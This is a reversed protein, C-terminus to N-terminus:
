HQPACHFCPGSAGAGCPARECVGLPGGGLDCLAGSESCTRAPAESFSGADCALWLWVIVLGAVLERTTSRVGDM